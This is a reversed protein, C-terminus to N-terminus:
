CFLLMPQLIKCRGLSVKIIISCNPFSISSCHVVTNVINDLM